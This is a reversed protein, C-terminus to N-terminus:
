KVRKKKLVRGFVAAIIAPREAELRELLFGHPECSEAAPFLVAGLEALLQTVYMQGLERLVVPPHDPAGRHTPSMGPKNTTM